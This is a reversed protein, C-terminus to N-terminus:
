KKPNAVTHPPHRYKAIHKPNKQHCKSGYMCLPRSDAFFAAEEDDSNVSEKDDIVHDYASEDHKSPKYEYDGEDGDNEGDDLWDMEPKSKKKKAAPMFSKEEEGEFSRKADQARGEFEDDEMLSVNTSNAASSAGNGSENMYRNTPPHAFNYPDIRYTFDDGAFSLIDGRKLDLTTGATLAQAKSSGTGPCHMIPNTSLVKISIAGKAGMTFVALQSSLMPNTADLDLSRMLFTGSKGEYNRHFKGVDLNPHGDMSTLQVRSTMKAAMPPAPPFSTEGDEKKMPKTQTKSSSAASSSAAKTPAAVAPPFWDLAENKSELLGIDINDLLNGSAFEPDDPLPSEIFNISVDSAKFRNHIRQIERKLQDLGEGFLVIVVGGKGASKRAEFITKIIKLVVAEWLTTANAFTPDISLERHLFLTGQHKMSEFWSTPTRSKYTEWKGEANAHDRAVKLLGSLQSGAKDLSNTNAEHFVYGSSTNANTFPRDKIFILKVDAPTLHQLSEFLRAKNPVNPSFTSLLKEIGPTAGIVPRLLPFWTSDLMNKLGYPDEQAPAAKPASAAPASPKSATKSPSFWDEVAAPKATAKKSPTAASASAAASAKPKKPLTGALKAKRDRVFDALLPELEAQDSPELTEWGAIDASSMPVPTKAM